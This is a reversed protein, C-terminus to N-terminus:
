DDKVDEVEEGKVRELKCVEDEHELGDDTGVGVQSSLRKGVHMRQFLVSLSDEGAGVKVVVM